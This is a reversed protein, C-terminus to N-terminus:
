KNGELFEIDSKDAASNRRKKLAILDATTVVRIKGAGFPIEIARKLRNQMTRSTAVLIDVLMLDHRVTKHFRWLEFGARPFAQCDPARRYGLQTLLTTAKPLDMPDLIFDMDQTARVHGHLGVALGGAVAYRLQAAAFRQVIKDFELYLSM